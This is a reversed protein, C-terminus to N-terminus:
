GFASPSLKTGAVENTKLGIGVGSLRGDDLAGAAVSAAIVVSFGFMLNRCKFSFRMRCDTLQFVGDGRLVRSNWRWKYANSDLGGGM